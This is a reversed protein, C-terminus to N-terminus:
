GHRKPYRNADFIYDAIKLGVDKQSAYILHYIIANTKNRMALPKSIFKFGAENKLRIRFAELLNDIPAKELDEGFLTSVPVYAVDQWSSDGWMANMREIDTELVTSRAHRLVNRQIDGTPFHLIVDMARSHGARVLVEWKLLIRYPDLYCLARDFNAWQVKPFVDDLLVSNADGPYVKAKAHGALRKEMAAAKEPDADVLHYNAFPPTVEEVIRVATGRIREQTEKRLHVGGGCFGDIYHTHFKNKTVIKAFERAYDTVIKIKRESWEGIEDPTFGLEDDDAM